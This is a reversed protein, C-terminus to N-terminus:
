AGDLGDSLREMTGQVSLLASVIDVVATMVAHQTAGDPYIWHRIMVATADEDPVPRGTGDTFAYIGPASALISEIQPVYPEGGEAVAALQFQGLTAEAGIVLPGGEERRIVNIGISQNRVVFHLDADGDTQETVEDVVPHTEDLWADITAAEIQDAM